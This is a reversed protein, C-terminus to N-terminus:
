DYVYGITNEVRINYKVVYRPYFLSNFAIATLTEFLEAPLGFKVPLSIM